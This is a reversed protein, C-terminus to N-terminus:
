VVSPLRIPSVLEVAVCGASRRRTSSPEPENKVMEKGVRRCLLFMSKLNISFVRDWAAEELNLLPIADHIGAINVLVDVKRKRAITSAVLSEVFDSDTVDGAM